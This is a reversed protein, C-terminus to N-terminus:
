PARTVRSATPPGTALFSPNSLRSPQYMISSVPFSKYLSPANCRHSWSMYTVRLSWGWSLRCGVSSQQGSKARASPMAGSSPLYRREICSIRAIHLCEQIIGVTLTVRHAHGEPSLVPPLVIGIGNHTSGGGFMNRPEVFQVEIVGTMAIQTTCTKVTPASPAAMAM